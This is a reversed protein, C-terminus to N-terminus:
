KTRLKKSRPLIADEDIDDTLKYGDEIKAEQKVPPTPSLLVASKTDNVSKTPWPSKKGTFQSRNVTGEGRSLFTYDCYSLEISGTETNVNLLLGSLFIERGVVLKAVFKTYQNKQYHCTLHIKDASINSAYMNVDLILTTGTNQRYIATGTLRPALPETDHPLAVMRTAEVVIRKLQDCFTLKGELLFIFNEIPMCIERDLNYWSNIYIEVFDGNTMPLFATSQQLGTEVSQNTVTNIAVFGSFFLPM